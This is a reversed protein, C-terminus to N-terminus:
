ARNAVADALAVMRRANDVHLNEIMRGDVVVVGKGERAAQEFAEIIRRSRELEEADPSFVENCPEIQGPHILTKGDFGLQAGQVCVARFGELDRVENYVGDLIVLGRARAALLCLGLSPLLAERGPTQECRLDKALDNTGMVWVRQRASARAIERAELVGGPTEMMSWIATAAPAGAAEMRREVEHLQGASEVKPVLIADPGAASAAALDAEGWETDLGNIRIAVERHGYGGDRVAACVRERAEPKAEPAVADELDLILADAPLDRAKELARANAGPMYLVSRRPRLKQDTM